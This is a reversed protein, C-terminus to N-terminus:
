KEIADILKKLINEGKAANEGLSSALNQAMEIQHDILDQAQLVMETKIKQLKDSNQINGTIDVFIGIYQNKEPLSYCIQQCILNYNQYHMEQNIVSENNLLLQEFPEPDILYSISHGLISNTCSFMKQFAPNVQTIELKNNLRVIGNPAKEIILDTKQEALKRM